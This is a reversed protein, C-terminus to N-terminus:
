THLGGGGGVVKHIRSGGKSYNCKYERASIYLGLKKKKICEIHFNYWILFLETRIYNWFIAVLTGCHSRELNARPLIIVCLSM